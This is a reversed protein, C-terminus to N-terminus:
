NEILVITCRARQAVGRNQLIKRISHAFYLRAIQVSLYLAAGAGRIKGSSPLSQCLGVLCCDGLGLLTDEKFPTLQFSEKLTTLLGVWRSEM